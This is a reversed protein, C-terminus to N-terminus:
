LPTEVLASRSTGNASRRGTHPRATQITLDAEDYVKNGCAFASDSSRQERLFVSGGSSLRCSNRTNILERATQGGMKVTQASWRGGRPTAIKRRTLEAAIGRLTYRKAQLDRVVPALEAARAKAETKWKAALIKAGTGGLRVGRGDRRKMRDALWSQATIRALIIVLLEAVITIANVIHSVDRKLKV